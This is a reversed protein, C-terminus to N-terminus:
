AKLPPKCTEGPHTSQCGEGIAQDEPIHIGIAELDPGPQFGAAAGKDTRMLPRRILMPEAILCELAGAEDFSAPDIEGSKVKKAGKNFWNEVPQEGFFPRLTEATWPESLMDKVNLTHGLGELRARQKANGKCGPKEYFDIKM